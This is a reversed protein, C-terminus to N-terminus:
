KLHRNALCYLKVSTFVSVDEAIAHNVICAHKALLALTHLVSMLLALLAPAIYLKCQTSTFMCVHDALM